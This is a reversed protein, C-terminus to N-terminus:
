GADSRDSGARAPARRPPLGRTARHRRRRGLGRRLGRVRLLQELGAEDVYLHPHAKDDSGTEDVYTDPAIETGIGFGRHRKSLMTFQFTGGPRLVRRCEVFAHGVVRGDGHYVVNWALVHGFAGDVVPLDTFRAVSADVPLSRAAAGRVVEGIGAPQCRPGRCRDRGRRVRVLPPRDRCRRRARADRRRGALRPVLATVAVEPESWLRAVRRRAM